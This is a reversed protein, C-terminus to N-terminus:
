PNGENSDVIADSFDITYTTNARLSDFLDIKVRKGATRINPMEIQPPSIVVKESANEMKIYEDFLISVKKKTNGTSKNDPTCQVVKPPTEDYPGGDPSGISACAVLLINFALVFYNFIATRRM